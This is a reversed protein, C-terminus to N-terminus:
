NPLIWRKMYLYINPCEMVSLWFRSIIVKQTIKHFLVYKIIVGCYSWPHWYTTMFFMSSCKTTLRHTSPVRAIGWLPWSLLRLSAWPSSHIMYITDCIIQLRLNLHIESTSIKTCFYPNGRNPLLNADRIHYLLLNRALFLIVTHPYVLSLHPTNSKSNSHGRFNKVWNKQWDWRYVTWLFVSDM